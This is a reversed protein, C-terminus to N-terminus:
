PKPNLTVGMHDPTVDHGFYYGGVVKTGPGITTQFYVGRRSTCPLRRECPPEWNGPAAEQVTAGLQGPTVEQV